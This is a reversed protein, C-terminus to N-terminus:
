KWSSYKWTKTQTKLSHTQGSYHAQNPPHSHKHVKTVMNLLKTVLVLVVRWSQWLFIASYGVHIHLVPPMCVFEFVIIWWVSTILSKKGVAKVAWSYITLWKWWKNCKNGPMGCIINDSLDPHNNDFLFVVMKKYYVTTVWSWYPYM